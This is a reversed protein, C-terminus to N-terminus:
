VNHINIYKFISNIIPDIMKLIARVISKRTHHIVVNNYYKFGLFEDCKNSPYITQSELFKTKSYQHIILRNEYQGCLIVQQLKEFQQCFNDILMLTELELKEQEIKARKCILLINEDQDDQNKKLNCLNNNHFMKWISPGWM